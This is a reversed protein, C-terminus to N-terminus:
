FFHDHQYHSDIEPIVNDEVWERVTDRIMIEEESLLTDVHAFDTGQFRKM